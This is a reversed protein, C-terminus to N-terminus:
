VAKVRRPTIKLVVQTDLHQAPSLAPASAPSLSPQPQSLSPSPAPSPQSYLSTGAWYQLINILPQM